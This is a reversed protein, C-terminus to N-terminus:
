VSAIAACSLGALLWCAVGVLSLTITTRNPRVCVAFVMSALVLTILLGIAKDILSHTLFLPLPGALASHSAAWKVYVTFITVGAVLITCSARLIWPQRPLPKLNFTTPDGPDFPRGCEPCIPDRLGRLLYGCDLCVASDPLAWQATTEM